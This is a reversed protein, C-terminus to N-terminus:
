KKGKRRQKEAKRRAKAREEEKRQRAREEPHDEEYELGFIKWTLWLGIKDAILAVAMATSFVLLLVIYNRKEFMSIGFALAMCVLFVLLYRMVQFKKETARTIRMHSHCHDCSIHEHITKTTLRYEKGCKYCRVETKM